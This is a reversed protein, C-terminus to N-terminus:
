REPEPVEPVDVVHQGKRTLPCKIWDWSDETVYCLVCKRGSM